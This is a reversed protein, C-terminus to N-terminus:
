RAQRTTAERTLWAATLATAAAAGNVILYGVPMTDHGLGEGAFTPHLLSLLSTGALIAGLVWLAPRGLRQWQVACVVLGLSMLVHIGTHPQAYEFLLTGDLAELRHAHTAGLMLELSTMVVYYAALGIVACRLPPRGPM